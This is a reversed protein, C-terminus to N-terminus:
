RALIDSAGELEDIERKIVTQRSAESCCSLTEEVVDEVIRRRGASGSVVSDYVDASLM